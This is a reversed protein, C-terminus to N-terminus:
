QAVGGSALRPRSMRRTESTLRAIFTSLVQHGRWQDELDVSTAPDASEGIFERARNGEGGDRVLFEEGPASGTEGVDPEHANPGGARFGTVDGAGLGPQLGEAELGEAGELGIIEETRRVGDGIVDDGFGQATGGGELVKAGAEAPVAEAQDEIENGVMEAQVM